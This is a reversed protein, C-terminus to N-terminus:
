RLNPRGDFPDIHFIDEVARAVFYLLLMKEAGSLGILALLNYLQNVSFVHSMLLPDTELRVKLHKNAVLSRIFDTKGLFALDRWGAQHYINRANEEPLTLHHGEETLRRGSSLLWSVLERWEKIITAFGSQIEQPREIFCRVCKALAIRNREYAWEFKRRTHNVDAPLVAAAKEWYARSFFYGVEVTALEQAYALVLYVGLKMRGELDDRTAEIIQFALPVMRVTVAAALDYAPGSPLPGFEPRERSFTISNDQQLPMFPVNSAEYQSLTRYIAGAEEASIVRTSPHKALFSLAASEIQKKIIAATSENQAVVYFAVHPGRYWSRQIVSSAAYWRSFHRYLPALCELFLADKKRSFYFIRACVPSTM